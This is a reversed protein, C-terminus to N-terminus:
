FCSVSRFLFVLPKQFVNGIETSNEIGDLFFSFRPDGKEFHEAVIKFIDDCGVVLALFHGHGRETKGRGDKVRQSNHGHGEFHKGGECSQHPLPSRRIIQIEARFLM